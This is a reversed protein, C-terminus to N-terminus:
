CGLLVALNCVQRGLVKRRNPARRPTSRRLPIDYIWRHRRLSSPQVSQELELEDAALSDTEQASPRCGVPSLLLPSELHEFGFLSPGNCKMSPAGGGPTSHGLTPNPVKTGVAFPTQEVDVSPSTQPSRRSCAGTGSIQRRSRNEKYSSGGNDESVATAKDRTVTFNLLNRKM